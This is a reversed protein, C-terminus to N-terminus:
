FKQHESQETNPSNARFSSNPRTRHESQESSILQETQETPHPFNLRAFRLGTFVGMNFFSNQLEM